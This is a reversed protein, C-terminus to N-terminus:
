LGVSAQSSVAAHFKIRNCGKETVTLASILKWRKLCFFFFVAFHEILAKALHALCIPTHRPNSRQPTFLPALQPAAAGVRPFIRTSILSPTEKRFVKVCSLVCAASTRQHGAFVFATHKHEVQAACMAGGSLRHMTFNSCTDESGRGHMSSGAM